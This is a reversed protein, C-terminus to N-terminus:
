MLVTDIIINFYDFHYSKGKNENQFIFGAHISHKHKINQDMKRIFHLNYYFLSKDLLDIIM